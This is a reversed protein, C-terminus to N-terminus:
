RLVYNLYRCFLISILYHKESCIEPRSDDDKSLIDKNIDRLGKVTAHFICVAAPKNVSAVIYMTGNFCM